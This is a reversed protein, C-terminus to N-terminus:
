QGLHDQDGSDGEEDAIKRGCNKLLMPHKIIRPQNIKPNEELM